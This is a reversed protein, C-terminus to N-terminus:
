FMNRYYEFVAAPDSCLFRKRCEETMREPHWQVALINKGMIGEITGDCHRQVVSLEQAVTECGQHHASNTIMESGYVEHLFSGHLNLVKHISDHGEFQIHDGSTSLHRILTGGMAVNILQMGRCIGFIPKNHSRYKEFLAFESKDRCVDPPGSSGREKGYYATDIDGGGCLVLGDYGSDQPCYSFSVDFDYKIFASTYNAHANQSVSLLIHPKM